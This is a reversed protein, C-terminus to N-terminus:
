KGGSATPRKRKPTPYGVLVAYFDGVTDEYHNERCWMWVAAEATPCEAVSYRAMPVTTRRHYVTFHRM